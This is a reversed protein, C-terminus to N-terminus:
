KSAERRPFRESVIGRDCYNVEIKDNILKLTLPLLSEFGIVGSSAQEFPLRKSDTDHPSHDSTICDIENNLIATKVANM